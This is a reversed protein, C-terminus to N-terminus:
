GGPEHYGFLRNTTLCQHNSEYKAVLHGPHPHRPSLRLMLSSIALHQARM